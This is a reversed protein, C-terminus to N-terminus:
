LNETKNEFKIYVGIIKNRSWSNFFCLYVLLLLDFITIAVKYGIGAVSNQIINLVVVSLIGYAYYFIKNGGRGRKVVRGSNGNYKEVILSFIVLFALLFQIFWFTTKDQILTIFNIDM